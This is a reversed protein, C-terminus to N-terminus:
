QLLWVQLPMISGCVKPLDDDTDRSRWVYIIVKPPPRVLPDKLVKSYLVESTIYGAATQQLAMWALAVGVKKVWAWAVM